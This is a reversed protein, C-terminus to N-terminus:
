LAHKEKPPSPYTKQYQEAIRRKLHESYIPELDDLFKTLADFEGKSIFDFLLTENERVVEPMVKDYALLRPFM